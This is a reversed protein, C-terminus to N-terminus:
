FAQPNYSQKASESLEFDGRLRKERPILYYKEQTTLRAITIISFYGNNM